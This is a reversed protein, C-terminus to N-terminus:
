FMGERSIQLLYKLKNLLIKIDLAMRKLFLVM